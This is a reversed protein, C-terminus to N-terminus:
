SSEALLASVPSLLLTLLFLRREGSFSLVQVLADLLSQLRSVETRKPKKEKALAATLSTHGRTGQQVYLHPQIYLTAHEGQRPSFSLILVLQLFCLFNVLPFPYAGTGHKKAQQSKGQRNRSDLFRGEKSRREQQRGDREEDHPPTRLLRLLFLSRPRDLSFSSSFGVTSKLRRMTLIPPCMNGLHVYVPNQFRIKERRWSRKAKRGGKGKLM